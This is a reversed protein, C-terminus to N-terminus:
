SRYYYTTGQYECSSYNMQLESAAKEWDICTAPWKADDEIAGIDEAFDRAYDEFESEPILTESHSWESIEDRLGRLEELEELEEETLTADELAGQCEFANRMEAQGEDKRGLAKSLEGKAEEQTEFMSELEDLRKNLDRTDLYKM